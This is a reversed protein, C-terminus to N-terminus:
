ECRVVRARAPAGLGRGRADVVAEVVRLGRVYLQEANKSAPVGRAYGLDGLRGDVPANAAFLLAAEPTARLRMRTFRLELIANRNKSFRTAFLDCPQGSLTGEVRLLTGRALPRSASFPASLDHVTSAAYRTNWLVAQGRRYVWQRAFRTALALADGAHIEYIALVDPDHEAVYAALSRM